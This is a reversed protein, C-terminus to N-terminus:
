SITRIGWRAAGELPDEVLGFGSSFGGRALRPRTLTDWFHSAQSSFEESVYVPQNQLSTEYERL